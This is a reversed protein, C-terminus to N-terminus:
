YASAEVIRFTANKMADVDNSSVFKFVDFSQTQGAGLNNAYVYDDAIRDGAANVAEIHISFTKESDTINKVTVTLRDRICM